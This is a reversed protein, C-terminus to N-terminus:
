KTVCTNTTTINLFYDKIEKTAVAPSSIIAIDKDCRIATYGIFVKSGKLNKNKSTLIVDINKKSAETSNYTIKLIQLEFGGETDTLESINLHKSSFSVADGLVSKNFTKEIYSYDIKDKTFYETVKYDGWNISMRKRFDTALNDLDIGSSAHCAISHSILLILFLSKLMNM